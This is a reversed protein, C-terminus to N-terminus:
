CLSLKETTMLSQNLFNVTFNKIQEGDGIRGEPFIVVKKSLGIYDRIKRM